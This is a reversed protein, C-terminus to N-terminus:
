EEAIDYKPNPYPFFGFKGAIMEWGSKPQEYVWTFDAEVVNGTEDVLDYYYCLGKYPCTYTRDTKHLIQTQVASPDAYYNGDALIITDNLQGQAIQRGDSTTITIM